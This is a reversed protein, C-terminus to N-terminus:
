PRIAAITVTAVQNFDIYVEGSAQGYTGPPFPGIMRETSTGIVVTKAPVTQGDVLGPIAFSCTVGTAGTKVHFFENGGIPMSHGDISAAAYTPLIGARSIQQVTLATRAM